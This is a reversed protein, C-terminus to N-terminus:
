YVAFRQADEGNTLTKMEGRNVTGDPFVTENLEVLRYPSYYKLDPHKRPSYLVVITVEIGGAYKRAQPGFDMGWLSADQRTYTGSGGAGDTAEDPLIVDGVAAVDSPGVRRVLDSYAIAIEPDLLDRCHPVLDDIGGVDVDLGNVFLEYRSERGKGRGRTWRVLQAGDSLAAHPEPTGRKWGGGAWSPLSECGGILLPLTLCVLLLAVHRM